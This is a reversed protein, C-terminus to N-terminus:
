KRMSNCGPGMGQVIAFVREPPSGESRLQTFEFPDGADSVGRANPAVRHRQRRTRRVLGSAISGICLM